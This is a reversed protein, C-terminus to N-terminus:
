GANASPWSTSQTHEPFVQTLALSALAFAVAKDLDMRRGNALLRAMTEAGVDQRIRELVRGHSNMHAPSLIGGVESREKEEFGWLVAARELSGCKSEFEIFSRLVELLLAKEAHALAVDLSRQFHLAALRSDGQRVAVIGLEHLASTMTRTDGISEAVVLARELLPKAAEYDGRACALRGLNSAAIAIGNPDGVSEKLQLSQRFFSEAAASEGQGFAVSGLKILFTAHAGTQQPRQVLELSQEYYSRATAFDGLSSAIIGLNGLAREVGDWDGSHRALELKQEYRRKASLYDGHGLAMMGASHLLQIHLQPELQEEARSLIDELIGSGEKTYGRVYWFYALAVALRAANLYDGAHLIRALAVRSNDLERDLRRFWRAHDHGKLEPAAQEAIRLFHHVHRRYTDTVEDELELRQEVYEQIVSLMLFRPESDVETLCLLSKDVLAILVDLMAQGSGKDLVCVAEAAELDCGGAFVALHRLVRQEDECLLSYSWDIAARLTQQRRPQDRPGGVLLEVAGSAGDLVQSRKMRAVLADPSYLRTLAAALEIALPLGDLLSCIELVAALNQGDLQFGPRVARAREVFLQVAPATAVAAEVDLTTSKPLGLPEVWVVQEGRLRLAARSTAILQVGPCRELLPVMQVGAEILHEWNDVCLLLRKHALAAILDDIPADAGSLEVGLGRAIEPLIYDEHTIAELTVFVGGDPFSDAERACVELALRTKGVGGPGVLTILRVGSALWDHLLVLESERGILRNLPIPFRAGGWSTSGSM